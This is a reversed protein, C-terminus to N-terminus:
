LNIPLVNQMIEFGDDLTEKHNKNNYKSSYFVINLFNSTHNEEDKINKIVQLQTYIFLSYKIIGKTVSNDVIGRVESSFQKGRIIRNYDEAKFSFSFIPNSVIKMLLGENTIKFLNMYREQEDTIILNVKSINKDYAKVAETIYTILKEPNVISLLDNKFEKNEEISNLIKKRIEKQEETLEHQNRMTSNSM